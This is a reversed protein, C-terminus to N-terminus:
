TLQDCGNQEKMIEGGVGVGLKLLRANKGDKEVGGWSREGVQPLM